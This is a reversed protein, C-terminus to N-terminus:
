QRIIVRLVQADGVMNSGVSTDRELKLRFADGKAIADAQAQTFIISTRTVVGSSANTTNSGTQAAAFGDSDIDQGGAQDREFFVRWGVVGTTATRGVWDIDVTLAADLYDQSVTDEFIVNEDTTDDFVLTAHGNRGIGGAPNTAPFLADNADLRNLQLGGGAGGLTPISVVFDRFTQVMIDARRGLQEGSRNVKMRELLGQQTRITDAM